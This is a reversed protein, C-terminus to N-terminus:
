VNKNKQPQHKLIYGGLWPDFRHKPPALIVVEYIKLLINM